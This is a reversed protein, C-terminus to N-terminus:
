TQGSMQSTCQVNTCINNDPQQHPPNHLTLTAPFCYLPVLFSATSQYTSSSLICIIAPKDATDEAQWENKAM